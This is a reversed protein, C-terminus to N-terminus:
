AVIRVHMPDRQRRESGSEADIRNGECDPLWTDQRQGNRHVDRDAPREDRSPRDRPTLAGLISEPQQHGQGPDQPEPAVEVPEAGPRRRVRALQRLVEEEREERVLDDDERVAHRARPQLPEEDRGGIGERDERIGRALERVAHVGRERREPHSEDRRQDVDDDVAPQLRAPGLPARKPREDDDARRHEDDRPHRDQM